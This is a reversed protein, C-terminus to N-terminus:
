QQDWAHVLYGKIGSSRLKEADYEGFAVLCAPAGSNAAARRGDPHHFYLRDALFLIATAAKWVPEFWEAETRAHLLATGCGHRALMKVWDAVQYRHFPPNLFVRHGEWSRGLGDWTFNIEACNWPRPYAACPDLDFPGLADLIWKPTIWTQTAGITKQHSGLTMEKDGSALLFLTSMSVPVSRHTASSSPEGQFADRLIKKTRVDAM